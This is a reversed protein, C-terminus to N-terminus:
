LLNRSSTLKGQAPESDASLPAWAERSQPALNAGARQEVSVRVINALSVTLALNIWLFPYYTVTNFQGAVVFGLTTVALGRAVNSAFAPAGENNKCIRQIDKAIKLNRYILVLFIVLGVLGADTAVQIFINHPLQPKGNSWLKNPDHVAYVPAFNFYGVGLVPHNEIMKLGARWYDLRQISTRDTGSRTFRAKEAAPLLAFGVGALLAIGILVKFKLRRQVAMWAGQCALALQSGRDSAGLISLGGTIAGLMLFWYTVRRVYPKVFRALEFAIPAFMLMEGSFDASNQFFGPPGEIGWTAFGFGREAWTRAGFFSLKFNALLFIVLFIFYREATTVTNIILFYIVLWNFFDFWHSWSISPYIALVSSVVTLLWFFVMWINTSDRAWRRKPDMPLTLIVLGIAIKDLPLSSLSHYIRLPDFYQLVLYLCMMWFAFSQKQFESWLARPNLTYLTEM